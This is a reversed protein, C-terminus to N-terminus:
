RDALNFFHKIDRKFSLPSRRRPDEPGGLGYPFLTPYIMTFLAPNNFENVAKSDHPIEVYNSGAKKLHKLAELDQVVVSQFLTESPPPPLLINDLDASTASAQPPSSTPIYNSTTVDIGTSPVIHQIHFPLLVSDDHDRLADSDVLVDRYLHNHVKLWALANMVREKRVILPTAKTKLWEPSPPNAGVFIVCIPTIVDSISPPLTKAITSPQQPYVIIHGRIGRQTTPIDSEVDRLQIIWCKALCLAIM